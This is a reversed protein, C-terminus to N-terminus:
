KPWQAIKLNNKKAKMTKEHCQMKSTQLLWNTHTQTMKAIKYMLFLSLFSCIFFLPLTVTKTQNGM